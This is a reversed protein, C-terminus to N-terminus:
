MPDLPATFHQLNNCHHAHDMHTMHQSGVSCNMLSISMFINYFLIISRDMTVSVMLSQSDVTSTVTCILYTM